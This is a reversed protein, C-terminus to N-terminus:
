HPTESFLSFHRFHRFHLARYGDIDPSMFFCVTFCVAFKPTWKSNRISPDTFTFHQSINYITCVHRFMDHFMDHTWWRGADKNGPKDRGRRHPFCNNERSGRLVNSFSQLEARFTAFHSSKDMCVYRYRYMCLSWWWRRLCQGLCAFHQSVRASQWCQWNM